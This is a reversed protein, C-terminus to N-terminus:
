KSRSFYQALFTELGAILMALLAIPLWYESGLREKEVMEKLSMTPSWRIVKAVENLARQEDATIEDLNSEAPDPQTAFKLVTPPEAISVEYVGAMDTADYHLMSLGNVLEVKRLERAGGTHAPSLIVADKGLWEAGMRRAFGQGVRLNLGEDQRQVISALTRHLLPVFAPRVPLDNWTTTASSSFLIVRGLGWPREVVAPSNDAYRLVVKPTGADPAKESPPRPEVRAGDKGAPTSGPAPPVAGEGTTQLAFTRFFRASNLQGSGPDNWINVIPHDYGKSQLNIFKEEQAADGRPEGLAAPLINARKLLQENYFAANVKTGPFILLGGGRRLYQEFNPVLSAPFEPVNALVVADFDDLRQGALDPVAIVTPKIFFNEAEEPAVPVLAHALFFTESDRPESGPNGDVLLVRVERLARAVLTRRNDAAFRDDPIRATISHFGESRLRAFLSVARSEGAPISAIVVEDGAPEANVQLTVRVGTAEHKGHNTVRAEIRIPRNVPTLGSTVRLDGLGLNREEPEGVLVVRTQVSQDGRADKAKALLKQIDGLQRWGSQQSDTIVYVEKGLSTRGRLTEHAKEIAAFLDTARDSLPAERVVKRALNLDHTPEPIVANVGDSALFVAAASGIPLTDLVQEAAKRAKGWRQQLGDSVGMSASNDLVLVATVKSQGFIDNTSSRMAPRALALALLLLLLCRLALLIMDEIEMRRRNQEMSVKVFRMAAWVVKQFKRRNLLHIIIPVAVAAGAWLLLPNLFSM